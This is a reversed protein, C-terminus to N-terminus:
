LYKRLGPYQLRNIFLNYKTRTLWRWSYLRAVPIFHSNRLMWPLPLLLLLPFHKFLANFAWCYRVPTAWRKIHTHAFPHHGSLLIKTINLNMHQYPGQSFAQFLRLLFSVPKWNPRNESQTELSCQARTINSLTLGPADTCDHCPLKKWAVSFWPTSYLSFMREM